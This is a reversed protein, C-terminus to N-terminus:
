RTLLRAVVIAYKSRLQPQCKWREPGSAAVTGAFSMITDKTSVGCFRLCVSAAEEQGYEIHWVQGSGVIRKCHAAALEETQRLPTLNPGRHAEYIRVAM